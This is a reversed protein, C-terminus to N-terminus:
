MITVNKPFFILPFLFASFRSVFSVVIVIISIIVTIIIMVSIVTVFIIIIFLNKHFLNLEIYASMIACWSM